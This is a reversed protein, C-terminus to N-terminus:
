CSVSATTQCLLMRDPCANCCAGPLTNVNITKLQEINAPTVDGIDVIMTANDNSM